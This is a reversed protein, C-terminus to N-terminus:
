PSADQLVKLGKPIATDGPRAKGLREALSLGRRVDAELDTSKKRQVRTVIAWFEQEDAALQRPDLAVPATEPAPTVPATTVPAATRWEECPKFQWVQTPTSYSGCLVFVNGAADLHLLDPSSISWNEREVILEGGAIVPGIQALHAGGPAFVHLANSEDDLVYVRGAADVAMGVPDWEAVDKQPSGAPAVGSLNWSTRATGDPAYRTLVTQDDKEEMVVLDRDPTVAWFGEKMNLPWSEAGPGEPGLVTVRAPSGKQGGMLIRGAADRALALSEGDEKAALKRVFGREANFLKVGGDDALYFRGDADVALSQALFVRGPDEELEGKPGLIFDERWKGDAGFALIRAGYTGPARDLVYLSGDAGSAMAEPRQFQGPEEGSGGFKRVFTLPAGGARFSGLIHKVTAPWSEGANAGMFLLAVRTQEPNVTRIFYVEAMMDLAVGNPATAIMRVRHVEADLEGVKVPEPGSREIKAGPPPNRVMDDLTKALVASDEEGALQLVAMFAQGSFATEDMLGFAAIQNRELERPMWTPPLEISFGCLFRRNFATADEGQVSAEGAGLVMVVGALWWRVISGRKM